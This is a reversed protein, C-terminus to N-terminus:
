RRVLDAVAAAPGDSARYGGIRLESAVTGLRRTRGQAALGSRARLHAAAAEVQEVRVPSAGGAEAREAMAALQDARDALGRGWDPSSRLRASARRAWSPEFGTHQAAHQRYDLLPRAIYVVEGLSAALLGLWRDHLMATPARDTVESPFPLAAAVVDARFLASCGSVLSRELLALLPDTRFRALRRRSLGLRASTTGPLPRGQVDILAADSFVLTTARDRGAARGLTALKDPHWRDDQDCLAVWASDGRCATTLASEFSRVIGLRQLGREIRVPFPAGDAFRELLAVTGDTSADDRVVLEAPLVRQEALSALQEALHAEGDCTSLVVTIAPRRAESPIEPASPMLWCAACVISPPM